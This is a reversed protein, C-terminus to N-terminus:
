GEPVSLTALRFDAGRGGEMTRYSAAPEGVREADVLFLAPEGDLTAPVLYHSAPLSADVGLVEGQLAYGIDLHKAEVTVEELSSSLATLPAVQASGEAVAELWRGATETAAAQLLLPVVACTEVVPLHLGWTALGEVISALDALTGGVGGAEEAVLTATWGLERVPDGSVDLLHDQAYRDAADLLM